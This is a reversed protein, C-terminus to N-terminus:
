KAPASTAPVTEFVLSGGNAIDQHAIWTRDVVKGNVRVREAAPTASPAPSNATIVLRRDGLQIEARKWLPSVL